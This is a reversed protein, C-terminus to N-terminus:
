TSGANKEGKRAGVFVHLEDLEVTQCAGLAPDNAPLTQEGQQQLAKQKAAVWNAISQPNVSLLRAIRRFSLGEVHLALAQQRVEPPYGQKKPAATYDHQCAHCFHRQSGFRTRGFKIQRKDSQCLPCRAVSPESMGLTYM